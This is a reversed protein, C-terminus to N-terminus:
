RKLPSRMGLHTVPQRGTALQEIADFRAIMGAVSLNDDGRVLRWIIKFTVSM